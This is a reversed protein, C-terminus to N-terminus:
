IHPDNKTQIKNYSHLRRLQLLTVANLLSLVNNLKGLVISTNHWQSFYHQQSYNPWVKTTKFAALNLLIGSSMGSIYIYIYVCWLVVLMICEVSQLEDM